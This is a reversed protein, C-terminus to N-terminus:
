GHSLLAAVRGEGQVVLDCVLDCFRPPEKCAPLGAGSAPFPAGRGDLPEAPCRCRTGPFDLWILESILGQQSDLRGTREEKVNLTGPFKKLHVHKCIIVLEM